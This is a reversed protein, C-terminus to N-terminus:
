TGVGDQLKVVHDGVDAIAVVRACTDESSRNSADVGEEQRLHGRVLMSGEVQVDHFLVLDKVLGPGRSRKIWVVLAGTTKHGGLQGFALLHPYTVSTSISDPSAVPGDKSAEKQLGLSQSVASKVM